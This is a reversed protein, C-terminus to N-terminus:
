YTYDTATYPGLPQTLKTLLNLPSFRISENAYARPPRPPHSVSLLRVKFLTGRAGEPWTLNFPATLHCRPTARLNSLIRVQVPLVGCAPALRASPNFFFEVFVSDPFPEPAVRLRM